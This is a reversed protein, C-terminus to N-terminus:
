SCENKLKWNSLQKLWSRYRVCLPILTHMQKHKHSHIPRNCDTNPYLSSDLWSDFMYLAKSFALCMPILFLSLLSVCASLKELKSRAIMVATPIVQRMLADKSVFVHVLLLCLTLFTWMCFNWYLSCCTNMSCVSDQWDVPGIHFICLDIQRTSATTTM